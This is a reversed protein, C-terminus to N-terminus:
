EQQRHDSLGRQMSSTASGSSSPGKRCQSYKGLIYIKRVSASQHLAPDADFKDPDVKHVRLGSAWCQLLNASDKVAIISNRMDTHCLDLLLDLLAINHILLQRLNRLLTDSHRLAVRGKALARSFDSTYYISPPSCLSYVTTVPLQFTSHRGFTHGQVSTAHPRIGCVSVQLKPDYPRKQPDAHAFTCGIRTISICEQLSVVSSMFIDNFHVPFLM